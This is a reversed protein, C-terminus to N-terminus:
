RNDEPDNGSEGPVQLGRYKVRVGGEEAAARTVLYGLTEGNAYAIAFAGTKEKLELAYEVFIEGSWAAFCWEGICFVQIGAPLCRATALTELEGSAHLRALNLKRESGFWDCEATRTYHPDDGDRRMKELKTYAEREKKEADVVAPFTNPILDLATQQSALALERSFTMREAAALVSEGLLCGLRKAEAM